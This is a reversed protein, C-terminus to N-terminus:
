SVPAKVVAVDCRPRYHARTAQDDFWKILAASAHFTVM